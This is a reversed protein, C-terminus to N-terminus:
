PKPRTSYRGKPAPLEELNEIIELTKSEELNGSLVQEIIPRLQLHNYVTKNVVRAQQQRPLKVLLPVKRLIPDATWDKVPVDPDWRWGHDSTFILLADDFKGAAKLQEIIRGVVRDLYLL